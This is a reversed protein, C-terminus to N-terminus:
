NLKSKDLGKAIKILDIIKLIKLNSIQVEKLQISNAIKLAESDDISMEEAIITLKTDDILWNYGRVLRNKANFTTACGISSNLPNFISFDTINESKPKNCTLETNEFQSFGFTGKQPHYYQTILQMDGNDESPTIKGTIKFGSPIYEPIYVFYKQLSLLYVIISLVIGAIILLIFVPFKSQKKNTGIINDKNIQLSPSEQTQIIPTTPQPMPIQEEM